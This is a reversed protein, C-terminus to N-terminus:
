GRVLAAAGPPRAPRQDCAGDARWARRDSTMGLVFGEDWGSPLGELSGDWPVPVAHAEAVLEEGDLLAVQFEPFDAYLRGWYLDGPTNNHMYEPFTVASLREFRIELLDPRDAYRVLNM